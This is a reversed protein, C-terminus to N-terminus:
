RDARGWTTQCRGRLEERVHGWVPLFKVRTCVKVLTLRKLEFLIGLKTGLYRTLVTYHDTFAKGVGVGGFDAGHIQDASGVALHDVLKELASVLFGDVEPTDILVAFYKGAVRHIFGVKLLQLLIVLCAHVDFSDLNRSGLRQKIEENRQVANPRDVGLISGGFHGLIVVIPQALRKEKEFLKPDLGELM